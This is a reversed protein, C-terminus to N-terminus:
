IESIYDKFNEVPISSYYRNNKFILMQSGNKYTMSLLRDLTVKFTTEEMGAQEYCAEPNNLIFQGQETQKSNFYLLDVFKLVQTMIEETTRGFKYPKTSSTIGSLKRTEIKSAVSDSPVPLASEIFSDLAANKANEKKLKEHKLKELAQQKELRKIESLSKELEEKSFSLEKKLSIVSNTLNEVAEANEKKNREINSETKLKEERLQQVLILLSENEKVLEQIQNEKKSVELRFRNKEELYKKHTNEVRTILDDLNFM